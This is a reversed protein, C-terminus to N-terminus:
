SASSASAAFPSRRRRAIGWRGMGTDVKLHISLSDPLRPASVCVELAAERAQQEEGGELPSM